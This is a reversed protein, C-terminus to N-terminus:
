DGIWKLLVRILHQRHVPKALYDNMGKALYSEGDGGLANGTMAIIPVDRSIERIAETAEVGDLVPMNIDMLIANYALPKRKVMQVAEAGDWATDVKEFGMTQLLKLMVSQNLINDEALLLQKRSAVQRIAELQDSESKASSPAKSEDRQPKEEQDEAREAANDPPELRSDGMKGMRVTLWFVSGRGEPNAYHGITGEMLEALSKCISLGLGAGQYQKRKPDSFRSFPTFLSNTAHEPVGIGTDAVETTIEYSGPDEECPAFSTRVTIHGEETFKAANGILNQVIQRYRLPDGRVHKPLGPQTHTELTVGPKLTPRSNRVVAEVVKSVDLVDPTISFTGSALKSYDLLDNIIQLLMRGTDEIINMYERQKDDIDTGSLMTIALLMGHMPTRIEHSMNALFESKLKSSEEYAAILRAEAAKRETLDRTIKVFGVHRGQDYVPSVMVNAWFRSGDSRYRWGEDEVKGDRLCMELERRPKDAARDEKGYFISFHRGLVQETTYGKLIAAGSNWTVVHGAPDLMFIAYETVNNVLFRYTESMFLEEKRESSDPPRETSRLPTVDESSLLLYRLAAGDRVPTVKLLRVIKGRETDIEINELVEVDGTAIATTLVRHLTKMDPAPIKHAPFDYISRGLCGERRYGSERLYGDSVQIIRLSPNLVITPTPLLAFIIGLDDAGPALHPQEVPVSSCRRPATPRGKRPASTRDAADSDLSLPTLIASLASDHYDPAPPNCSPCPSDM